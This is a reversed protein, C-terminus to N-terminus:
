GARRENSPENMAYQCSTGNAWQEIPSLALKVGVQLLVHGQISVKLKTCKQIGRGPQSTHSLYLSGIYPCIEDALVLYIIYTKYNYTGIIQCDSTSAHLCGSCDKVRVPM